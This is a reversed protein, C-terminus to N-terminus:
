VTYTIIHGKLVRTFFRGSRVVIWAKLIKHRILHVFQSMEWFYIKKLMKQSLLRVELSVARIMQGTGRWLAFQAAKRAHKSTNKKAPILPGSIQVVSQDASDFWIQISGDMSGQGLHHAHNLGVGLGVAVIIVITVVIVIFCIRGSLRPCIDKEDRFEIAVEPSDYNPPPTVSRTDCEVDEIDPGWIKIFNKSWLIKANLFESTPLVTESYTPLDTAM